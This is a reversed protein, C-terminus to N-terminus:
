PHRLGLTEGNCAPGPEISLVWTATAPTPQPVVWLTSLEILEQSAYDENNGDYVPAGRPLRTEILRAICAQQRDASTWSTVSAQRVDASTTTIGLRLCFGIASVVVCVIAIRAVQAGPRSRRVRRHQPNLARNARRGRRVPRVRHMAEPCDSAPLV